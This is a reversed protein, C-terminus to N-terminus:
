ASPRGDLFTELGARDDTDLHDVGGARLGCRRGDDTGSTIM